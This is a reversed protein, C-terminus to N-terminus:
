NGDNNVREYREEFLAQLLIMYVIIDGTKEMTVSNPYAFNECLKDVMDYISVIQKTVMGLLAQEPQCKELAAARKFNSLRDSQNAYELGKNECLSDLRDKMKNLLNKFETNTM